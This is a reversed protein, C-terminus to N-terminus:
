VSNVVENKRKKFINYLVILVIGLVFEGLGIYLIRNFNMEKFMEVSSDSGSIFGQSFKVIGYLLMILIGDIIAPIATPIMWKIYSWNILMLLGILVLIISILVIRFTTSIFKTFGVVLNTFTEGSDGLEKDMDKFMDNFAKNIDEKSLNEEIYEDKVEEGTLEEIEKKHDDIYDLIMDYEKDTIEISGSGSKYNSYKDFVLNIFEEVRKDKYLSEVKELKDDDLGSNAAKDLNENIVEKIASGIINNKIFDEAIFSLPLILLLVFLVFSILISGLVKLVKM